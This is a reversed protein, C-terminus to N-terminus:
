LKSLLVGGAKFVCFVVLCLLFFSALWNIDYDLLQLKYVTYGNQYSNQYCWGAITAARSLGYGLSPKKAM